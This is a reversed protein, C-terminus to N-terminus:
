CDSKARGLQSKTAGASLLGDSEMGAVLIGSHHSAM